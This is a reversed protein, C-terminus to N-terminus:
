LDCLGMTDMSGLTIHWEGSVSWELTEYALLFLLLFLNSRFHEIELAM